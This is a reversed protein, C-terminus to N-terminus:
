LDEEEAKQPSVVHLLHYPCRHYCNLDTLRGCKRETAGPHQRQDVLKRLLRCLAIPRNIALKRAKPSVSKGDVYSLLLNSDNVRM